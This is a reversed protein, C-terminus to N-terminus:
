LFQVMDVSLDSSQLGVLTISAIDNLFNITVGIDTDEIGSIVSLLDEINQLGTEQSDFNLKDFAIEFDQIIFQGPAYFNFIDNGAGGFLNDTGHGANLIDDGLGGILNDNGEGGDLNDNGEGGNISDNGAGSAIVEAESSGTIIDDDFGDDDFDGDLAPGTYFDTSGNEGKGNPDNSSEGQSGSDNPEESGFLDSFLGSSPDSEGDSQEPSENEPNDPFEDAGDANPDGSLGDFIDGFSVTNEDDANM